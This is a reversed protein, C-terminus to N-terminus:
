ALHMYDLFKAIATQCGQIAADSPEFNVRSVKDLVDVLRGTQRLEM